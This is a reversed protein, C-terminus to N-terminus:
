AVLGGAYSPPVIIGGTGGPPADVPPNSAGDRPISGNRVLAVAGAHYNAADATAGSTDDPPWYFAAPPLGDAASAPNRGAALASALSDWNAFTSDMWYIAPHAVNGTLPQAATAWDLLGVSFRDLYYDPWNQTGGATKVANVYLDAATGRIAAFL